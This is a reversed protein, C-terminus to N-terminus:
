SPFKSYNASRLLADMMQQHTDMAEDRAEEKAKKESKSPHATATEISRAETITPATGSDKAVAEATLRTANELLRMIRENSEVSNMMRHHEEMPRDMTAVAVVDSWEEYTLEASARSEDNIRLRLLGSNGANPTWISGMSGPYYHVPVDWGKINRAIATWQAANIEDSMYDNGAHRIADRRVRAEASPLLATILDAEDIHRQFGVGM